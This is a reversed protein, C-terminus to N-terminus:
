MLLRLASDSLADVFHDGHGLRFRLRRSVQKVFGGSGELVSMRSPM